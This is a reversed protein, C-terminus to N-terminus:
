QKDRQTDNQAQLAQLLAQQIDATADTAGSVIAPSVLVTVKNERAYQEVVEDLTQTFRVIETSRKVETLPSQAINYEFTTITDNIDFEVIRTQYFQCTVLVVALLGIGILFLYGNLPCRKM